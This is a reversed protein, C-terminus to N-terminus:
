QNVILDRMQAPQLYVTYPDGLADMMGKLAGEYLVHPDVEDVYNRVVFNYVSNLLEMYQRSHVERETNSAATGATSSEAAPAAQAFASPLALICFAFCLTFLATLFPRLLATTKETKM